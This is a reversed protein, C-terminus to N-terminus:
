THEVFMEGLPALRIRDNRLLQHLTRYEVAQLNKRYEDISLPGGYERLLKWSPSPIIDTIKRIHGFIMRWMMAVLVTSDKYRYDNAESLYAMVCNFSCFSGECEFAHDDVRYRIPIGVPHWETPITHRCHWCCCKKM